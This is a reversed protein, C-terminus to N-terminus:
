IILAELWIQMQTENQNISYDYSILKDWAKRESSCMHIDFIVVFPLSM